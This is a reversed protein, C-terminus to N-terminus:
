ITYDAFAAKTIPLGSVTGPHGIFEIKQITFRNNFNGNNYELLGFRLQDTSIINVEITESTAAGKKEWIKINNKEIGITNISCSSVSGDSDGSVDKTITTATFAEFLVTVKASINAPFAVNLQFSKRRAFGGGGGGSFTENNMCIISVSAMYNRSRSVKVIDSGTGGQDDTVTSKFEWLDGGLDLNSVLTNEDTPNNILGGVGSIKEWLQSVIFGDPDYSTSVLQATTANESIILDNGCDVIPPINGNSGGNGGSAPDGQYTNRIMTISSTGSDLNFSCNVPFYKRSDAYKFQLIDNFNISDKIELDIKEHVSAFMRRYVNAVIQEYRLEEIQYISDTWKEWSEREGKYDLVAYVEVDFNGSDIFIPTKIVMQEGTNFNYVVALDPVYAGNYKVTDINDFILNAGDLDVQAYNSGQYQFGYLIPVQIVNFEGGIQDLPELRFSKSFGSADDSFDLTLEKVITFEENIVDELITEEKFDVRDLTLKDIFWEPTLPEEVAVNDCIPEYIRIDILGSNQTIIDFSVKFTTYNFESVYANPDNNPDNGNEFGFSAIFSNLLQDNNYIEVLMGNLTFANTSAAILPSRLNSIAFDFKLIQGQAVYLKRRLDVYKTKDIQSVSTGFKANLKVKYENSFKAKAFFGNRGIWETAYIEASTGTSIAWGDNTEKYVTEPLAQSVRKQQILIRGYPPVTTILPNALPKKVEKVLRSFEANEVFTGDPQYRQYNLKLLHRKNLGEVFWVNNSQYVMCVMDKLLMELVSFVDMFKEGDMFESSDLFIQHYPKKSVNEIAPSVFLELNLGTLELAKSIIEVVSKENRYFDLPFKKGKLRGLGDTAMFTVFFVNNTYPESYTEPLLHGQWFIRDDDASKLEVRFRTENGTFLDIFHADSRDAVLMDFSLSSGVIQVDDKSDSGQWALVVNNRSALEQILSHDGNETDIIDVYYNM